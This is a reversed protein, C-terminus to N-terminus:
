HWLGLFIRRTLIFQNLICYLMYPLIIGLVIRVVMYNLNLGIVNQTGKIFLSALIGHLFYIPIASQGIAIFIRKAFYLGSILLSIYRILVFCIIPIILNIIPFGYMQRYMDFYPIFIFQNYDAMIIILLIVILIFINIYISNYNYIFKNKFFYGFLYFVLAMPVIEISLPLRILNFEAGSLFVSYKWEFIIATFYSLLAIFVTVRYNKIKLIFFAALQTEFLCPIFWSHALQTGSLYIGGPLLNKVAIKQVYGFQMLLLWVFMFSFYPIMLHNFRARIFTRTPVNQKHLIGSLIFFLPVHFWYIYKVSEYKFLMTHGTIIFLLGIAKTIDIWAIRDFTGTEKNM